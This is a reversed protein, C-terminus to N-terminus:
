GRGSPRPQTVIGQVRILLEVEKRPVGLAAAIHALDEGRRLMRTAHVRKNLNFGSRLAPLPIEPEREPASVSAELLRKEITEFRKRQKRAGIQIERKLSLFLFLTATLGLALFISHILM